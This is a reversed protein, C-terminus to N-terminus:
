VSVRRSSVASPSGVFAPSPEAGSSRQLGRGQCCRRAALAQGPWYYCPLSSSYNKNVWQLIVAHRTYRLWLPFFRSKGEEVVAHWRPCM